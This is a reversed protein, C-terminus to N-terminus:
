GSTGVQDSKSKVRVKMGETAIGPFRTIIQDGDGLGENVYVLNDVRRLVNVPKMHIKGNDVVYVTNDEHIAEQPLLCLGEVAKGVIELKVFMGPMLPHGTDPHGNKIEVVIPLTRTKEEM